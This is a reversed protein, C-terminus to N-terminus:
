QLIYGGPISASILRSTNILDPGEESPALCFGDSNGPKSSDGPPAPAGLKASIECLRKPGCCLSESAVPASMLLASFAGSCVAVVSARSSIEISASSEPGAECCATKFRFLEPPPGCPASNFTSEEAPTAPIVSGVALGIGETCGNLILPVVGTLVKVSALVGLCSMSRAWPLVAFATAERSEDIEDSVDGAAALRSVGRSEAGIKEAPILSGSLKAPASPLMLAGNIDDVDGAM